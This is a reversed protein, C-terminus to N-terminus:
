LLLLGLQVARVAAETRSEVGLKSLIAAVHFKATHESVELRKAIQKNSLGEALLHLVQLERPTLAEGLPEIEGQPQPFAMLSSLRPELVMLGQALARVAVSLTQPEDERLLIGQAGASLVRAAETEDNLLALVPVGVDSLGALSALTKENQVAWDWVIVDPLEGSAEGEGPSQGVVELGQGALLTALGARAWLDESIVWVRVESM